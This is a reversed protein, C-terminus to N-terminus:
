RRRHRRVGALLLAGAGAWVALSAPEPILAIDRTTSEGWIDSATIRLIREGPGATFTGPIVVDTRYDTQADTFPQPNMYPLSLERGDLAINSTADYGTRQNFDLTHADLVALSDADLLEVLVRNLIPQEDLSSVYEVTVDQGAAAQTPGLLSQTYGVDTPTYLLLPHMHPDFGSQGAMPNALQFELSSAVGFRLEFHLHPAYAEGPGQGSTGVFGVTDGAAFQTTGITWGAVHPTTLAEDLHMYYTYFRTWNQGNYNVPNPLDHRLRVTRGGATFNVYGDFTGAFAAVVSDGISGDIDIGRHWDYASASPQIRPGFTEEIDDFSKGLVPFATNGHTGAFANLLDQYDGHLATTAASLCLWAWAAHSTRYLM